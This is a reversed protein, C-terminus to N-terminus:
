SEYKLLRGKLAGTEIKLENIKEKLEDNEKEYNRIIEIALQITKKFKKEAKKM